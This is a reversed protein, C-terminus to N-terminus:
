SLNSYQALSKKKLAITAVHHTNLCDAECGSLDFWQTYKRYLLWGSQCIHDFMWMCYFMTNTTAYKVMNKVPLLTIFALSASM